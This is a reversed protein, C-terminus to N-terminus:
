RAKCIFNATDDTSGTGKYTAVQPYPCLPRTRDVAGNKMRSAIIREPAKGQEKWQELATLMDFNNPGDGGGCHGMGPVMFLRYSDNVTKANGVTDLVKEYYNISYGPVILQDAWGHYQLLKGGRAFFPKLNPDLATIIGPDEKEALGLATEMNLTKYNWDPNKFVIYKWFGNAYFLPDPGALGAWGPESGRELGPAIIQKTLPNRTPGYLAQAAEVQPATLCTASDAGARCLLVKPDFTCRRPSELVGDKVGDQADCADLVAKHIVPYLAPPIYSSEDKHVTQAAHIAQIALLSTPAAPAGAVIADYDEPYKQAEKLGQRGGTSCGVWYSLKPGGGYYAAVITKAQVTMEHVARYGFDIVKEPHGLAFTGDQGDGVHGTDTAAAAYGKRLATALAGANINGAFGGNGTGQFKGNWGTAPMWVEVKIDSDNSPKVTALVRCFAPLDKFNPPQANGRAPVTFAGAEITQALTITTNPLTLMSLSECTTGAASSTAPEAFEPQFSYFALVPVPAIAVISLLFFVNKKM